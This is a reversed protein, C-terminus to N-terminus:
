DAKKINLEKIETNIAEANSNDAKKSSKKKKLSVDKNINDFVQSTVIWSYLSAFRDLLDTKIYKGADNLEMPSLIGPMQEATRNLYGIYEGIKSESKDKTSVKIEQDLDLAEQEIHEELWLYERRAKIFTDTKTYVEYPKYLDYSLTIKLDKCSILEHMINEKNTSVQNKEIKALRENLILMQEMTDSVASNSSENISDVKEDFYKKVEDLNNKPMVRDLIKDFLQSDLGGNGAPAERKQTDFYSADSRGPERRSISPAAGSSGSSIVGTDVRALDDQSDLFAYIFASEIRGRFIYEQRAKAKAEESVEPPKADVPLEPPKVLAPANPQQPANADPKVEPPMPPKVDVPPKVLVTANADPKVDEKKEVISNKVLEELVEKKPNYVINILEEGKKALGELGLEDRSQIFYEKLKTKIFSFMDSFKDKGIHASTIIDVLFSKALSNPVYETKFTVYGYHSILEKMTLVDDMFNKYAKGKLLAKADILPKEESSDVSAAAKDSSSKSSEKSGSLESIDSPKFNGSAFKEKLTEVAAKPDVPSDSKSAGPAGQQGPAPPPPPIGKNIKAANAALEDTFSGVPKGPVPPMPPRAIPLGSQQNQQPAAPPMVLGSQSQTNKQPKLNEINDPPMPLVVYLEDENKKNDNNDSM